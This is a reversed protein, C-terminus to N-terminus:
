MELFIELTVPSAMLATLLPMAKRMHPTQAHRHFAIWGTFRAHIAFHTKSGIVRTAVYSLCGSENRRVNDSLEALLRVVEEDLGEVAEGRVIVCLGRPQPSVAADVKKREGWSKTM